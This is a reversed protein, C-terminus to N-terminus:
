RRKFESEIMQVLKHSQDEKNKSRKQGRMLQASVSVPKHTMSHPTLLFIFACLFQPINDTVNDQPLKQNKNFLYAVQLQATNARCLHLFMAFAHRWLLYLPKVFMIQKETKM